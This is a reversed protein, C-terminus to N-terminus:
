CPCPGPAKYRREQLLLQMAALLRQVFVSLFTQFIEAPLGDFGQSSGGKLTGLGEKESGREATKRAITPNGAGKASHAFVARVEM